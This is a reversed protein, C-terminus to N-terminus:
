TSPDQEHRRRRRAHRAIVSCLEIPNLPKDVLEVFGEALLEERRGRYATV